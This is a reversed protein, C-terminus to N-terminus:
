SAATVFRCAPSAIAGAESPSRWATERAFTIADAIDATNSCQAIISPRKDVTGNHVLRAKDYGSDEPSIVCGSIAGRLAELTIRAVADSM